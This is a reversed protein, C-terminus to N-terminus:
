DELFTRLHESRGPHRLRAMAKGEIQRIRERTVGYILGIEDLTMPEGELGWRRIVVGAEREDLTDLAAYLQKRLDWEVVADEQKTADKDEILEGLTTDAQGRGIGGGDGVSKDLSVTDRDYNKIEAIKEPTLEKKKSTNKSGEARRGNLETALEEDTPVRGLRAEMDRSARNVQGIIEHMHVPIRVTRAQNALARTLAQRIWWTSYTSFKYGKSYDFLEVAHRLGLNGEQILDLFPMGRGTQKKALSVVLRLNAEIMHNMAKRGDESMWDLEANTLSRSRALRGIVAEIDQSNHLIKRLAPPQMGEKQVQLEAKMQSLHAKLNPARRATRVQDAVQGAEIRKALEVEEAADLLPVKGIYRLYDKVPDTTLQISDLREESVAETNDIIYSQRDDSEVPSYSETQEASM